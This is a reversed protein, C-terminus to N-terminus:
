AAEREQRPRFDVRINEGDADIEVYRISDRVTRLIAEITDLRDAILQKGGDPPFEAHEHPDGCLSVDHLMKAMVSFQSEQELAQPTGITRLLPNIVNIIVREFDRARVSTVYSGYGDHKPNTLAKFHAQAWFDPMAPVTKKAM